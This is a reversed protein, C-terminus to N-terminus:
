PGQHATERSVGIGRGITIDIVFLPVTITFPSSVVPKSTKM